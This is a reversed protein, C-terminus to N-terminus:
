LCSKQYPVWDWCGDNDGQRVNLNFYLGTPNLVVLYVATDDVVSTIIAARDNSRYEGGEMLNTIYRGITSKM